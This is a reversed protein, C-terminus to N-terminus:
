VFTKQDFGGAALVLRKLDATTTNTFINLSKQRLRGGPLPVSNIGMDGEPTLNYVKRRDRDKMGKKEMKEKEGRVAM